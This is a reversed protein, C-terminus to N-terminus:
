RLKCGWCPISDKRIYDRMDPCNPYVVVGNDPDSNPAPREIYVIREAPARPQTGMAGLMGQKGPVPNRPLTSNYLAGQKLAESQQPSTRTSEPRSRTTDHEVPQSTGATAGGKQPSATPSTLPPPTNLLELLNKLQTQTLPAQTPPPSPQLKATTSSAANVQTTNGVNNTIPLTTTTRQTNRVNTTAVQTAPASTATFGEYMRHIFYSPSIYLLFGLIGILVWFFLKDM